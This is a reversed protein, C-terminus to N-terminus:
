KLYVIVKINYYQRYTTIIVSYIINYVYLKKKLVMCKYIRPLLM